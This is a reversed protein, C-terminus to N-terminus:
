QETEKKDTTANKTETNTSVHYGASSSDNDHWSPITGLIPLDTISKVDEETYVTTNFIFLLFYIVYAIIAVLVAAILCNRTVSPSVPNRNEVPLRLPSICNQREETYHGLVTIDDEKMLKQQDNEHIKNLEQALENYKAADIAILAAALEDITYTVPVKVAVVDGGDEGVGPRAIRTVIEPAEETLHHAITYARTPDTDTVTVTFTALTNGTSYAIMQRLEKPTLDIDAQERLTDSLHQMMKDGKLIAIYNQALYENAMLTTSNAYDINQDVNVIYFEISSAYQKPIFYITVAGIVLVAVLAFILIKWWNHKFVEWLAILSITSNM